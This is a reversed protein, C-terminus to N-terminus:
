CTDNRCTNIVFPMVSGGLTKFMYSEPKCEIKSFKFKITASFCLVAFAHVGESSPQVRPCALIADATHM